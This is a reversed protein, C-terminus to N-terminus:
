RRLEAMRAEVADKAEKLGVKTIDRYHKIAMIKQDKAILLDLEPQLSPGPATAIPAPATEIPTPTPAPTGAQIAEVADKAEKLGVGYRERYRKIAEIKRGARLAAAIEPDIMLTAAVPQPAAGPSQTLAWRAADIAKRAVLVSGGHRQQYLSTAAILDNMAVLAQIDPDLM